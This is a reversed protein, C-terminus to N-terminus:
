KRRRRRKRKIFLQWFIFAGVCSVVIVMIAVFPSQIAAVAQNTLDPSLLLFCIAAICIAAVVIPWQLSQWKSEQTSYYADWWDGFHTVMRQIGATVRNQSDGELVKLGEIEGYDLVHIGQQHIMEKKSETNQKRSERLAALADDRQKRLTEFDVTQLVSLAEGKVTKVSLLHTNPNPITLEPNAYKGEYGGTLLNFAPCRAGHKINMLNDLIPEVTLVDMSGCDIAMDKYEISGPQMNVLDDWKGYYHISFESVLGFEAYGPNFEVPESLEFIKTRWGTPKSNEDLDELHKKETFHVNWEFNGLKTTGVNLRALRIILMFHKFRINKQQYLLFIALYGGVLFFFAVFLGILMGWIASEPGFLYVSGFMFGLLIGASGILLLFIYKTEGSFAGSLSISNSPQQEENSM